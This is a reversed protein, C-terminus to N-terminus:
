TKNDPHWIELSCVAEVKLASTICSTQGYRSIEHEYHIFYLFLYGKIFMVLGWNM